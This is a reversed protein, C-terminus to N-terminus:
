HFPCKAVAAAARVVAAAQELWPWESAWHAIDILACADESLHDQARHHRLDSTVYVDADAAASLFSDGAGGCVAVTRVARQPDGAIRVGHHTQPLSMAVHEAFQELTVAEALEGIRGTGVGAPEGELQVLPRIM